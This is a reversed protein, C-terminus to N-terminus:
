NLSASVENSFDSEMNSLDLTTVAFYYQGVPLHLKKVYISATPATVFYYSESGYARSPVRSYVRYGKINAAPLQNGDSFTTPTAWSLIANGSYLTSSAQTDVSIGGGCGAFITLLILLFFMISVKTPHM